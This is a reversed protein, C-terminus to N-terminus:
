QPKGVGIGLDEWLKIIIQQARGGRGSARAAKFIEDVQATMPTPVNHSRALGLAYGIDKFLLNVTGGPEFDENIIGPAAVDMVKSGAWGGRIANYLSEADLGCERALAFGEAIVAFTSGVVMNNVLKAVGGAGVEGVRVVSAGIVELITRHKEFLVVPGGVMIALSADRAASEGGSVPADLFGIRNEALRAACSRSIEPATTSLDIVVSGERMVQMVGESGIIVDRVIESTPLSLFLIEAGSATNQISDAIHVGSNLFRKTKSSDVDFVSLENSGRLHGAIHGGMVGLGIFGIKM